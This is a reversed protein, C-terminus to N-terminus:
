SEDEGANGASAPLNLLQKAVEISMLLHRLKKGANTLEYFTILEPGDPGDLPSPIARTRRRVFHFDQLSRTLIHLPTSTIGGVNPVRIYVKQQANDGLAWNFLEYEIEEQIWQGDLYGLVDMITEFSKVPSKSFFDIIRADSLGSIEM